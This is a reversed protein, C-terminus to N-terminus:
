LHNLRKWSSFSVVSSSSHEPWGDVLLIGSIISFTCCISAYSCHSNSLNITSYNPMLLFSMVCWWRRHNPYASSRSRIQAACAWLCVSLLTSPFKQLSWKWTHGPDMAEPFCEHSVLDPAVLKIWFWFPLRHCCVDLTLVSNIVKKSLLSMMRLSYTGAPWVM